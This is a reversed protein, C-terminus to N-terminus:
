NLSFCNELLFRVDASDHVFNICFLTMMMTQSINREQRSSSPVSDSVIEFMGLFLFKFRIKTNRDHLQYKWTNKKQVNESWRWRADITNKPQKQFSFYM